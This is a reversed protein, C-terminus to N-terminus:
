HVRFQLDSIGPYRYAWPEDLGRWQRFDHRGQNCEMGPRDPRNYRSHNSLLTYDQQGPTTIFGTVVRNWRWAFPAGLMTQMVTNASTMAPELFNGIASRRGFNLKKTWEITRLLTNTSSSAM